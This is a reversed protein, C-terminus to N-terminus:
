TLALRRWGAAVDEHGAHVAGRRWAPRDPEAAAQPDFAHTGIPEQALHVLQEDGAAGQLLLFDHPQHVGVAHVFLSRMDAIRSEDINSRTAASGESAVVFWGCRGRMM